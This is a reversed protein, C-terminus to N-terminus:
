EISVESNSRSYWIRSISFLREDSSPSAGRLKSRPVSSSCIRGSFRTTPMGACISELRGSTFIGFVRQCLGKVVRGSGPRREIRGETQATRQTPGVVSTNRREVGGFPNEISRCREYLGDEVRASVLCLKSDGFRLLLLGQQRELLGQEVSSCFHVIGEGFALRCTGFDIQALFLDSREFGGDLAGLEQHAM